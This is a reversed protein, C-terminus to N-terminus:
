TRQRDNAKFGNEAEQYEEWSDYGNLEAIAQRELDEEYYGLGMFGDNYGYFTM